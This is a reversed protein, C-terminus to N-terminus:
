RLKRRMKINDVVGVLIVEMVEFGASLASMIHIYNLHLTTILMMFGHM